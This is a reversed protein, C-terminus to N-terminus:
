RREEPAPPLSVVAKGRVEGRGLRELLAPLEDFGYIGDIQPAVMGGRVFGTIQEAQTAVLEPEIDLFAGWAAGVVAINRLLLRNVAVTPIRGAAFGIVVLRGAPDLCRIAEDFLWDGLPDAVVDVGRGLLKHVHRAYDQELLIVEDAGARAAVDAQAEDAVGALVRAGLGKAVQVAATGIGGAAGLVLATEGSMLRARRQLAFLATQYNVIMAAAMDLSVDPPVRAATAVPVVAQEAYAGTWIFASVHDGASWRSGPPAAAVVGAIECGPVVPLEPKLQYQGRTMLLDPFNVGIARVDVLLDNDGPAPAPVEGLYLGAPGDYSRLRYAKM